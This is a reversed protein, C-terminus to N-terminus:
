AVDQTDEVGRQAQDGSRMPQFDGASDALWLLDGSELEYYWVHLSLRGEQVRSRIWPFTMLNALSVKLAEHECVRQTTEPPQGKTLELARERAQKAIRMWPGIFEGGAQRGEILAKIGGCSEHGLLVIHEVELSQVAFEIAASTGHLENSPEYPPVLNAVNRVVFADGPGASFILGPDVRSDCCSIILAKPSQGHRALADFLSRNQEYYTERFRRFGEILREM